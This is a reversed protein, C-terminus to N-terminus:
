KLGTSYIFPRSKEGGQRGSVTTASQQRHRSKYISPSTTLDGVSGKAVSSPSLPKLSEIQHKQQSEDHGNGFM